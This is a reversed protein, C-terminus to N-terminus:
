SWRDRVSRVCLHVTADSLDEPYRYAYTVVSGKAIAEFTYEYCGSDPNWGGKASVFDSEPIGVFGSLVAVKGDLDRDEEATGTLISVGWACAAVAVLFALIIGVYHRIRM